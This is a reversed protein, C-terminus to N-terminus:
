SVLEATPLFTNKFIKIYAYDTVYKEIFVFGYRTDTTLKHSSRVTRYLEVFTKWATVFVTDVWSFCAHYSRTCSLICVFHNYKSNLITSINLVFPQM